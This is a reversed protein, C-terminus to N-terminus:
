HRVFQMATVACDDWAAPLGMLWRSHAPNLQGGGKIEAGYGIPLKGSDMSLISEVSEMTCAWTALKVTDRLKGAIPHGSKRKEGRQKKLVADLSGGGSGEQAIPTDWGSFDNDSKRPVSARLACILHHSPTTRVRWIMKYLTSGISDTRHRFKSVLSLQLSVSRSSGIGNRGSIDLIM